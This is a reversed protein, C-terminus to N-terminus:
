SSRGKKKASALAAEEAAAKARAEERERIQPLAQQFATEDWLEGIYDLHYNPMAAFLQDWRKTSKYGEAKQCQEKRTEWVLLDAAQLGPYWRADAFTVSKILRRARPDHGVIDSYLSLRGAAFEPDRDFVLAVIGDLNAATLRDVIQRLIRSLCFEQATGWRLDSHDKKIKRWAAMDMAVGVGTIQSQRIAEIFEALVADRKPIDWGLDRYQGALPILEKMHIVEIGHKFLLALWQEHLRNLAGGDTFYGAMCVYPMSQHSEKGSDDLFCHVHLV